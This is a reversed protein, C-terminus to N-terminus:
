LVMRQHLYSKGDFGTCRWNERARILHSDPSLANSVSATTLSAPFHSLNVQPNLMEVKQQIKGKIASLEAKMDPLQFQYV